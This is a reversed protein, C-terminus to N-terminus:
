SGLAAMQAAGQALYVALAVACAGAITLELLTVLKRMSCELNRLCPANAAEM